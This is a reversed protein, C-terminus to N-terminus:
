LQKEGRIKQRVTTLARFLHSKVTGVELDTAQAIEELTLEEVFRLLFVERQRAPLHDVIQAVARTEERALLVREPSAQGDPLGAAAAETDESTSGILRRWFSQRRSKQHDRALNLAIRVLWTGVASEGRFSQRKQYARLFCEQTLTDAAEADRLVALLVRYIRRQHLRVLCDFDETAIERELSATRSPAAGTLTHEM